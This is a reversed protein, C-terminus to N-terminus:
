FCVDLLIMKRVLLLSVPHFCFISFLLILRGLWYNEIKNKRAQKFIQPQLMPDERLTWHKWVSSDRVSSTLSRNGLFCHHRRQIGRVTVKRYSQSLQSQSLFTIRDSLLQTAKPMEPHRDSDTKRIQFYSNTTATRESHKYAGFSIRQTTPPTNGPM